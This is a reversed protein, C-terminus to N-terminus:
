AGTQPPTPPGPPMATPFEAAAVRSLLRLEEVSIGVWWLLFRGILWGIIGAIIMLNALPVLSFATSPSTWELARLGVGIFSSIWPVDKFFSTSWRDQFAVYNCETYEKLRVISEPTLTKLWRLLPEYKVNMELLNGSLDRSWSSKHRKKQMRFRRLLEHFADLGSLTVTGATVSPFSALEYEEYVESLLNSYKGHRRVWTWILAVFYLFASLAIYLRPHDISAGEESVYWWGFATIGSLFGTMATVFFRFVDPPFNPWTLPDTRLLLNWKTPLFRHIHSMAEVKSLCMQLYRYNYSLLLAFTSGMALILNAFVVALWTWIKEKTAAYGISGVATAIVAFFKGFVEERSRLFDFISAHYEPPFGCEKPPNECCPPRAISSNMRRTHRNAHTYDVSHGATM